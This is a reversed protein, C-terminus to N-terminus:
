AARRALLNTELMARQVAEYSPFGAVGDRNLIDLWDLSKEGEPIEGKPTIAMAKKGMAWMREVLRISAEQGHGRPHEKSPRDKDSFVIVM